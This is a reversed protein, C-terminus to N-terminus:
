KSLRERKMPQLLFVNTDGGFRLLFERERKTDAILKARGEQYNASTFFEPAKSMAAIIAKKDYGGVQVENIGVEIKVVM